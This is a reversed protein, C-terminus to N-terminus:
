RRPEYLEEVEDEVSEEIEKKKSDTTMDISGGEEIRTSENALNNVSGLDHCDHCEM